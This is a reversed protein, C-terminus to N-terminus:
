VEVLVSELPKRELAPVLCGREPLGTAVLLFARENPPRRLLRELFTMPSPTHTLAVLGAEHLAALLFGVAIGVSEQVYYHKEREALGHRQAFVAILAPAHELFPKDPGTGFVDLDRLWREGARGAYFAREEVEAAERLSRRVAPDRVLVFTWPQKHAGSPAQAAAAICTRVIDLDVPEDRFARVSRRTRMSALFSEARRLMERASREEFVLPVKRPEPRSAEDHSM